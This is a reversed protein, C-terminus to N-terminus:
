IGCMLSIVHYKDKETECIEGLMVGELDTCTLWSIFINTKNSALQFDFTKFSKVISFNLLCFQSKTSLVSFFM